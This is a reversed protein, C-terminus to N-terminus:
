RLRNFRNKIIAKIPVLRNLHILSWSCLLLVILTTLSIFLFSSPQTYVIYFIIAIFLISSAILKLTYTDPKFKVVKRIAILIVFVYLIYNIVFALGIAEIGINNMLFWSFFLLGFTGILETIIYTVSSRMAPLIYAVPWIFIKLLTGLLLWQFMSTAELFESSYLLQIIIPSILLMAGIAPAGILIGIHLQENVLNNIEVPSDSAASLRPYYDRGMAQFILQLYIASISWGAQFIGVHQLGLKNNILIRLIYMVIVMFLGSIMLAIGLNGLYKGHSFTEKLSVQIKITNIKRSFYFVCALNVAAMIVMGPIIADTGYKYYLPITISLSIVTGIIPSLAMSQIRRYGQLLALQGSALQSLLVIISIIKFDTAHTDDNFAIRSLQVSFAFVLIMGAIGIFWTLKNLVRFTFAVREENKNKVAVAIDRVASQSLGSGAVTGILDVTSQLLGALGVGAPGILIAVFKTGIIKLLIQIGQAIGSIGTTKLIQKYSKEPMNQLFVASINQSLNLKIKM